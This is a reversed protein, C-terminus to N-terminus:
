LLFYTIMSSNLLLPQSFLCPLSPSHLTGAPLGGFVKFTSTSSSTDSQSGSSSSSSSSGSAEVSGSAGTAPGGGVETDGCCASEDAGWGASIELKASGAVDQGKSEINALASASFVM